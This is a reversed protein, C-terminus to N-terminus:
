GLHAQKMAAKRGSGNLNMGIQDPDADRILGTKRGCPLIFRKGKMARDVDARGAQAIEVGVRYLPVHCGAHPSGMM